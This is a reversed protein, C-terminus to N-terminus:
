GVRRCGGPLRRFKAVANGHRVHIHAPERPTGESSFFFFVYGKYRLVAPMGLEALVCAKM